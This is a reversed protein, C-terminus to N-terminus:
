IIDVRCYGLTSATPMRMNFKDGKRVTVERERATQKIMDAGDDFAYYDVGNITFEIPSDTVSIAYHLTFITGQISIDPEIDAPFWKANIAKAGPIADAVSTTLSENGM